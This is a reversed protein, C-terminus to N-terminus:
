HNQSDVIYPKGNGVQIASVITRYLTISPYRYYLEIEQNKEGCLAEMTRRLVDFVTFKCQVWVM